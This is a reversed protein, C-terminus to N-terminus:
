HGLCSLRVFGSQFAEYYDKNSEAFAEVHSRLETSNILTDRHPLVLGTKSSLLEKYYFNDLKPHSSWRAHEPNRVVGFAEVSALAM